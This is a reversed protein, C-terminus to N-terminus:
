LCNRHSRSTVFQPDHSAGHHWTWLLCYQDYIDGILQSHTPFHSPPLLFHSTPLPFYSTPLPFHSTFYCLQFLFRFWFDQRQGSWDRMVGMNVLPQVGIWLYGLGEVNISLFASKIVQFKVMFVCFGRLLEKTNKTGKHNLGSSEPKNFERDKGDACSPDSNNVCNLKWDM